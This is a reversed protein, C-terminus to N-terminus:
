RHEGLTRNNYLTQCLVLCISARFTSLHSLSLVFSVLLCVLLMCPPLCPVCSPSMLLCPPSSQNSRIRQDYNLRNWNQMCDYRSNAGADM